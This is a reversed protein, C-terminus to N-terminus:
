KVEVIKFPKEIPLTGDWYATALGYLCGDPAKWTLIGQYYSCWESYKVGYELRWKFEKETNIFNAKIM